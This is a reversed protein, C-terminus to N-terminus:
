VLCRWTIIYLAYGTWIEVMRLESNKVGITRFSLNLFCLLSAVWVGFFNTLITREYLHTNPRNWVSALIRQSYERWHSIVRVRCKLIQSVVSWISLSIAIKSRAVITSEPSAPFATAERFIPWYLSNRFDPKFSKYIVDGALHFDSQFNMLFACNRAFFEIKKRSPAHGTKLGWGKLSSSQCGGGQWFGPDVVWNASINKKLNKNAWELFSSICPRPTRRRDTQLSKRLDSRRASLHGFRWWVQVRHVGPWRADLSHQLDLDVDFIM